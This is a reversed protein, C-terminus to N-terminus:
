LLYLKQITAPFRSLDIHVQEDDGAGDGTLNDGSHQISGDSSKLNGFYIVDSNSKLSIMKM